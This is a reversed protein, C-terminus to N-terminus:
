GVLVLEAQQGDASAALVAEASELTKNFAGALLTGVTDSQSKDIRAIVAGTRADIIQRTLTNYEVPNM